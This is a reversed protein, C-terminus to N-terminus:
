VSHVCHDVYGAEVRAGGLRKRTERMTGRALQHAARMTPHTRPAHTILIDKAAALEAIRGLRGDLRKHERRDLGRVVVRADTWLKCGDPMRGLAELIADAEARVTDPHPDMHVLIEGNAFPEGKPDVLGWAAVTGDTSTSVSADVGWGRRKDRGISGM